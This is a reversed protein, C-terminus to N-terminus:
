RSYVAGVPYRQQTAQDVDVRTGDALVLYWDEDDTTTTTAPKTRYEACRRKGSVTKYRACERKAPTTSTVAAEHDWATVQQAPGAYDEADVTSGPVYGPAAGSTSPAGPETIPTPSPKVSCAALGLALALAVLSYRIKMLPNVKRSTRAQGADHGYSIRYLCVTCSGVSPLVTFRMAMPMPKM